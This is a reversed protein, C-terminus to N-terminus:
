GRDRDQVCQPVAGPCELPQAPVVRPTRGVALEVDPPDRAQFELFVRHSHLPPPARTLPAHTAARLPHTHQTHATHTHYQDGPAAHRACGAAEDFASLKHQALRPLIEGENDWPKSTPCEGRSPASSGTGFPSPNAGDPPGRIGQVYPQPCAVTRCQVRPYGPANDHFGNLWMACNDTALSWEGVLLPLTTHQISNLRARWSCANEM